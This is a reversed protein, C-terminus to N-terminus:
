ASLSQEHQPFGNVFNSQHFVTGRSILYSINLTGYIIDHGNRVSIKDIEVYSFKM